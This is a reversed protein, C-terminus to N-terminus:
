PAILEFPSTGGDELINDVFIRSTISKRQALIRALRFGQSTLNYDDSVSAFERLMVGIDVSNTAGLLLGNGGGQTSFTVTAFADDAKTTFKVGAGVVDTYNKEIGQVVRDVISKTDTAFLQRENPTIRGFNVERTVVASVYNKGSANVSMLDQPGPV